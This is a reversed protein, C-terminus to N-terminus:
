TVANNLLALAIVFQKVAVELYEIGFTLVSSLILLSTGDLCQFLTVDTKLTQWCQSQFFLSCYALICPCFLFLHTLIDWFFLYM